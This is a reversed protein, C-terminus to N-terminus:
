KRGRAVRGGKGGKEQKGKARPMGESGTGGGGGETESVTVTIRKDPKWENSSPDHREWPGPLEYPVIHNSSEHRIYGQDCKFDLEREEDDGIYWYRDIGLYLWRPGDTLKWVVEGQALVRPELRYLGTCKQQEATGAPVVVTMPSYQMVDRMVPVQAQPVEPEPSAVAMPPPSLPVQATSAAAGAPLLSAGAAPESRAPRSAVEAPASPCPAAVRVESPAAAGSTDRLCSRLMAAFVKQPLTKEGLMSFGLECIELTWVNAKGPQKAKGIFFDFRIAPPMECIQAQVWSLWHKTVVQCQKEGDELAALDGNMWQRAAEERTFLEEFDGFELNEKIRCFKTYIMCEVQGEVVYIRLELNHVIYEQVIIFELDHPQGTYEESIEIKQSLAFLADELGQRGEWFKVDLAEWSFGLKAVGKTVEGQPPPEDRLAAQQQRVTNLSALARDTAASCSQEVLMRPLGVTPPVRLHPTLSMMYTWRKSTLLEYFGSPHPFRTPIGAREVAQITRFLSKQAVLAAGNDEGTEMNPVCNEEFGTPYLFYMACTNQARRAPHQAGFMLHATDAIKELDTWSEIYVTWIEYKNGLTPVVASDIFAEIFTDSVSSGTEGWQQPAVIENLGGWRFTIIALEPRVGPICFCSHQEPEPLEAASIVDKIPYWEKWSSDSDVVRGRQTYFHPWLHEISVKMAAQNLEEVRAPVWGESMGMRPRYAGHRPDLAAFYKRHPHCRKDMRYFVFVKDGKSYNSMLEM